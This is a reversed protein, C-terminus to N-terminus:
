APGPEQAEFVIRRVDHGTRTCREVLLAIYSARLSEAGQLGLAGRLREIAAEDPGELEVYAGLFPLEDLEVECDGLTWTERRKEFTVTEVFGLAALIRCAAAADGITTEIEERVKLASDLRRGKYTLAAPAVRGDLVVHERVRLGRDSALLSRGADDFIHNIERVMGVRFAGLAQLRLRIADHSDVKFKAEIELPV